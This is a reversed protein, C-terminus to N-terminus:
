YNISKGNGALVLKLRQPFSDVLRQCLKPDIGYWITYVQNILDTKTAPIGFIKQRRAKIFAWFNEIRNLDPSFPPWKLAKIKNRRFFKNVLDSKHCPANDHMLTLEIDWNEKAMVLMPIVNTNIIEIYKRGNMAGDIAILPGIGFSTFCGWFMVSFGGSHVQPNIPAESKPTSEHIWAKINKNKPMSRITTEDSWIVNNFFAIDFQSYKAAFEMRKMANTDSVLPKKRLTVNSFGHEKLYRFCSSSSPVPVDPGLIKSIEGPIIRYPLTPMSKITVEIANGVQEKIFSSSSNTKSVICRGHQYRHWFSKICSKSISLIKAMKSIPIDEEYMRIIMEKQYETLMPITQINIFHCHKITYHKKYVLAHDFVNIMM